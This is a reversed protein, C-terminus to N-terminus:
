IITSSSSKSKTAKLKPLHVESRYIGTNSDHIMHMSLEQKENGLIIHQMNDIFKSIVYIDKTYLHRLLPIDHVLTLNWSDVLM